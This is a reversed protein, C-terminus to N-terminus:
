SKPREARAKQILADIANPLGAHGNPVREPGTTYKGDVIITPVSQIGYAGAMQKARNVKGVVAFSGLLEKMKAPDMGKSAAWDLFVKEDSLNIGKGHIAAFIEPAYKAEDGNAELAYYIKALMEWKPQFM